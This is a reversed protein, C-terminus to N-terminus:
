GICHISTNYSNTPDQYNLKSLKDQSIRINHIINIKDYKNVDSSPILFNIVRTVNNIYIRYESIDEKTESNYLKELMPLLIGDNVLMPITGSFNKVMTIANHRQKLYPDIFKKYLSNQLGRVKPEDKESYIESIGPKYIITLYPNIKLESQFPNYILRMDVKLSDIRKIYIMKLPHNIYIAMDYISDIPYNICGQYDYLNLINTAM